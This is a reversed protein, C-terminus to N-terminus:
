SGALALARDIQQIIKGAEPMNPISVWALGGRAAILAAKMDPSAAILKANARQAANFDEVPADDLWLRALPHGGASIVIDGYPDDDSSKATWPGHTHQSM